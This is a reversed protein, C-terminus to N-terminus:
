GVHLLLQEMRFIFNCVQSGVELGSGWFIAEILQLFIGLRQRLLHVKQLVQQILLFFMRLAQVLFLKM